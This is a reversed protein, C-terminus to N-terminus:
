KLPLEIEITEEGKLEQTIEAIQQRTATATEKEAKKEKAIELAKELIKANHHNGRLVARVYNPHLGLAKAVKEGTGRPYAGKKVKTLPNM